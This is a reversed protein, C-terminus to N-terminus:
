PLLTWDGLLLTLDAGDVMGDGSLDEPCGDCVDGWAGLLLTLDAGDVIGDGNIDALPGAAVVKGMLAGLDLCGWGTAEDFGVLAIDRTTSILLSRLEVDSLTPDVTLALAAAGAVHPCAFSTGSKASYSTTFTSSTVDKGPACLDIEPGYNSSSWRDDTNTMAGVAVTEPWKAPYAINGNSNGTAAVMLVGAAEGYLIADHFYEIGSVYQLSMNIVDAAHDVAWILGDAAWTEYGGCPDVVVIPLISATWCIGAVGVGNNGEAAIIGSVHTGHSSCVDSGDDTENPINRGQLVRLTLDTHQNAGSDLIAVIIPGGGSAINWGALANVDAGPLGAQGSVTQGTNYMNWQEDFRPDDPMDDGAALGGIADFEAHEVLAHARMSAIAFERNAGPELELRLWRDLGIAVAADRNAARTSAAERGYQIGVKPLAQWLGAGDAIVWAGEADVAIDASVHLKVLLAPEVNVQPPDGQAVVVFSLATLVPLITM